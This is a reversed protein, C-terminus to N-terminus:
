GAHEPATRHVVELWLLVGLTGLYSELNRLLWVGAHEVPGTAAVVAQDVGEPYVLGLGVATTALVIGVAIRVRAAAPQGLCTPRPHVRDLVLGTLIFMGWSEANRVVWDAVGTRAFATPLEAAVALALVALYPWPDRRRDVPARLWLALLTAAIFPEGHTTVAAPLGLSEGSAGTGALGVALVGVLAATRARTTTGPVDTRLVVLALALFAVAEANNRAQGVVFGPLAAAFVDLRLVLLVVVAAVAVVVAFADRRRAASSDEAATTRLANAM